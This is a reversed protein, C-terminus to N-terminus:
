RTTDAAEVRALDNLIRATAAAPFGGEEAADRALALNSLDVDELYRGMREVTKTITQSRTIKLKRETEIRAYAIEAFDEILQKIKAKDDPEGQCKSADWLALAGITGAVGLPGAVAAATAGGLCLAGTGFVALGIQEACKRIVDSIVRGEAGTSLAM